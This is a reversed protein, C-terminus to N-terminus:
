LLEAGRILVCAVARSRATGVVCLSACVNVRVRECFCLCLISRCVCVRVQYRELKVLTSALRAWNPIHQFLIRAAEYFAENFLRCAHAHTLKYTHQLLIRAAKCSAEKFLRCASTCTCTLLRCPPRVAKSQVLTDGRLTCPSV